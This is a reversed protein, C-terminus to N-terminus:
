GSSDILEHSEVQLRIDIIASSPQAGATAGLAFARATGARANGSMSDVTTCPRPWRAADCGARALSRLDDVCVGGGAIIQLMRHSVATRPLAVGHRRWTGHRGRGPRARDNAAGGAEPRDSRNACPTLSKWAPVHTLPRGSKLDLSFILQEPGIPPSCSVRHKRIRCRNLDRWRNCGTSPGRGKSDRFGLRSARCKFCRRRDLTRAGSRAGRSLDGM